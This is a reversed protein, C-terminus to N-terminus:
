VPHYRGPALVGNPDLAAKITGLLRDYGSGQSMESMGQIGLRYTLPVRTRDIGAAFSRLVCAAQEDQGREGRDYCISIVCALARETVLTM